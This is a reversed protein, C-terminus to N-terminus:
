FGGGLTCKDPNALRALKAKQKEERMEMYKKTSESVDYGAIEIFHYFDYQLDSDDTNLIAKELLEVSEKPHNGVCYCLATRASDRAYANHSFAQVILPLTLMPHNETLRLLLHAAETQENEKQLCSKFVADSTLMERALGLAAVPYNKAIHEIFQTHKPQDETRGEPAGLKFNAWGNFKDKRSM